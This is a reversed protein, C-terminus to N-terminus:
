KCAFKIRMNLDPFAGKMKQVQESIKSADYVYLPSGYERAVMEVDLGQITYRGDVIEM